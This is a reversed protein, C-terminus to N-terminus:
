PCRPGPEGDAGDDCWPTVGPLRGRHASVWAYARDQLPRVGPLRYLRLPVGTGLAAGLAANAAAAGRHRAGTEDDVAWVAAAAQEGTLGVDALVGPAQSARPTVRDHRDLRRVWRVSRTCFGCRGDFVLTVRRPPPPRRAGRGSV